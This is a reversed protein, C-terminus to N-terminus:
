NEQDKLLLQILEIGGSNGETENGNSEEKKKEKKRTNKRIIEPEELDKELADNSVVSQEKGRM